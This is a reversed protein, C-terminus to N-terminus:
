EDIHIEDIKPIWANKWLFDIDEAEDFFLTWTIRLEKIKLIIKNQVSKCIWRPFIWENNIYDLQIKENELFISFAKNSKIKQLLQHAKSSTINPFLSIDDKYWCVCTPCSIRSM